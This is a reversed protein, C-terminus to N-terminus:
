IILNCHLTMHLGTVSALQQELQDGYKMSARRAPQIVSLGTSVTCGRQGCYVEGSRSARHLTCSVLGERLSIITHWQYCLAECKKCQHVRRPTARPKVCSTAGIDVRAKRGNGQIHFTTDWTETMNVGCAIYQSSVNACPEGKFLRLM